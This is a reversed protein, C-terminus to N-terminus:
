EPEVEIMCIGRPDLKYSIKVIGNSYSSLLKKGDSNVIYIKGSDSLGYEKSQFTMDVPYVQDHISAIAVGLMNDASLWSSGYVTPYDKEFTTVKAKQGAYISLRSIKLKEKPVVMHPSRVYRGHLLYKLNKNRIQALNLLYDLEDKRESALLPKYNSIMPQMGWM